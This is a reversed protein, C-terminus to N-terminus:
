GYKEEIEKERNAVATASLYERESDLLIRELRGALDRALEDIKEQIGTLDDGDLEDRRLWDIMRRGHDISCVPKEGDKWRVLLAAPAGCWCWRDQEIRYRTAM